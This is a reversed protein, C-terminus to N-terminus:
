GDLSDSGPREPFRHSSRGLEAGASAQWGPGQRAMGAAEWAELRGVAVEAYGTWRIGGGYVGLRQRAASPSVREGM